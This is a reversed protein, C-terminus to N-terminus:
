SDEVEEQIYMGFRHVISREAVDYRLLGLDEEIVKDLSNIVAQRVQEQNM